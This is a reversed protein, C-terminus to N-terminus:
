SLLCKFKTLTQTSTAMTVQTVLPIGMLFMFGCLFLTFLKRNPRLLEPYEDIIGAAITEV